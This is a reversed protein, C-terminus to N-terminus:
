GGAINQQESKHGIIFHLVRTAKETNKQEMRTWPIEESHSSCVGQCHIIVSDSHERTWHPYIYTYLIYPVTPLNGNLQVGSEFM